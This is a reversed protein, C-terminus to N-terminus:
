ALEAVKEKLREDEVESVGHKNAKFVHELDKLEDDFRRRRMHWAPTLDRTDALPYV